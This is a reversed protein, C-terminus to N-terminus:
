LINSNEMFKYYGRQKATDVSHCNACLVRCKDIEKQITGWSSEMMDSVCNIKKEGELHDLQLCPVRNENCESCPNNLSYNYLKIRNKHSRIKRLEHKRDKQKRTKKSYHERDYERRCPRCHKARQGYCEYSKDCKNCIRIITKM